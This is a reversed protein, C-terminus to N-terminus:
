EDITVALEIQDGVTCREVDLYVMSYFDKSIKLKGQWVLPQYAIVTEKGFLWTSADVTDSEVLSCVRVDCNATDNTGLAVLPITIVHVEVRKVTCDAPVRVNATLTTAVAVSRSYLVRM